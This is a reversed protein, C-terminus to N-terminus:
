NQPKVAVETKDATQKGTSRNEIPEIPSLM